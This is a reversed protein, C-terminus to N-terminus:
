KSVEEIQLIDVEHSREALQDLALMKFITWSVSNIFNLVSIIYIRAKIVFYHLWVKCPATVQRFWHRSRAVNCPTLIGDLMNFITKQWIKKCHLAPKSSRRSEYRRQYIVSTKVLLEATASLGRSAEHWRIYQKTVWSWEFHCQQTPRTNPGILLTDVSKVSCIELLNGPYELLSKLFFGPCTQM